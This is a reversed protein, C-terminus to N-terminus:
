KKIRKLELNIVFNMRRGTFGLINVWLLVCVPSLLHVYYVNRRVENEVTLM